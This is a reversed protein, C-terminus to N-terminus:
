EAPVPVCVSTFMYEGLQEPESRGALRVWEAKSCSSAPSQRVWGPPLLHKYTILM